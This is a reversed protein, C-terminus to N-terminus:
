LSFVFSRNDYTRGIWKDNSFEMLRKIPSGVFGGFINEESDEILFVLNQKGLLLQNFISTEKKWNDYNSDFLINQLKYETFQEIIQIEKEEIFIKNSEIVNKYHDELTIEMQMVVFQDIEFTNYQKDILENQKCCCKYKKEKCYVIIDNNDLTFLVNNAIEYIKIAKEQQKMPYTTLTNRRLKFLFANSDNILKGFEDISNNIYCGFKRCNMTEILIVFHSKDKMKEAFTSNLQDWSDKNSDFLISECKRNIQKEILEIEKENIFNDFLEIKKKQEEEKQKEMEKKENEEILEWRKLEKEQSEKKELEEQKLKEDEKEKQEEIEKKETETNIIFENYNKEEYEEIFKEKNLSKEKVKMKMLIENMKISVTERKEKFESFFNDTMKQLAKIFQNFENECNVILDSRSYLEYLKDFHTEQQQLQNKITDNEVEFSLTNLKSYLDYYGNIQTSLFEIKDVLKKTINKFLNTNNIETQESM